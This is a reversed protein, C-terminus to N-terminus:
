NSADKAKYFVRNHTNCFFFFSKKKIKWGKKEENQKHKNVAQKFALFFIFRQINKYFSSYSTKILKCDKLFSSNCAENTRIAKLTM